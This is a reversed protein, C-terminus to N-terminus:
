LRVELDAVVLGVRAAEGDTVRDREMGRPRAPRVDRELDAVLQDVGARRRRGPRLAERPGQAFQQGIGLETGQILSLVALCLAMGRASGDSARPSSSSCRRTAGAEGGATPASLL